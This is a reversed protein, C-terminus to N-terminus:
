RGWRLANTSFFSGLAFFSFDAFSSYANYIICAGGTEYRPRRACLSPIQHKDHRYSQLNGGRLPPLMRRICPIRIAM